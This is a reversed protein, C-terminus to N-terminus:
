AGMSDIKTQQMYPVDKYTNKHTDAHTYTHAQM